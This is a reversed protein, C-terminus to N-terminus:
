RRRRRGPGRRKRREGTVSAPSAGGGGVGSRADVGQGDGDVAAAAPAAATPLRRNRDRSRSRGRGRRGSRRRSGRRGRGRGPRGDARCPGVDGAGGAGVRLATKFKEIAYDPSILMPDAEVRVSMGYRAEILAIHERKQNILYNVVAIPAKLLVERSRKRTGEEELARLVTLALSDDSRILGTGHCHPCPQTTSELMGPRLRQRSMEM